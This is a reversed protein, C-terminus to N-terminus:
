CRVNKRKKGVRGMSRIKAIYDPAFPVKCATNGLNVSVKGIQDAVKAAKESLATVYAGVGIVFGNMTYRVRNPAEHIQAAVHNLLKELKAPDLDEDKAVAVVGGLAAWGTAAVHEKESEIWALGLEWGLPSEAALGAVGYELVMYWNTQEVWANLEEATVKKKDGMLAALYMADANGTEFLELALGHDQKTQKLIKKMDGVKVGFMPEAAGHARYIKRTQESGYGELEKLVEGLKVAVEKSFAGDLVSSM